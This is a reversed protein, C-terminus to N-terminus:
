LFIADHNACVVPNLGVNVSHTAFYAVITWLVTHSETCSKLGSYLEAQMCVTSAPRFLIVSLLIRCYSSM